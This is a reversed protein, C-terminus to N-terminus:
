ETGQTPARPKAGRRGGEKGGQDGLGQGSEHRHGRDETGATVASPLGDYRVVATGPPEWRDGQGEQGRM